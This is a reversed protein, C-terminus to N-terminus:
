CVGIGSGSYDPMWVNEPEGAVTETLPTVPKGLAVNEPTGALAEASPAMSLPMVCYLVDRLTRSPQM